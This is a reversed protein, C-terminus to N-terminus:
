KATDIAAKAERMAQGVLPLLRRAFFDANVRVVPLALQLFDAANLKRVREVSAKVDDRNAAVAIGVAESLLDGSEDVIQLLMDAVYQPDSQESLSALEAVDPVIPRLARAFVPLRDMTVPSVTFTQGAIHIVTSEPEIATLEDSM